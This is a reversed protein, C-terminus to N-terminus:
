TPITRERVLAVSNLKTKPAMRIICGSVSLRRVFNHLICCTKVIIYCFIPCVDMARRFIRWKNCVIGFACELMRRARTLTYNYIRRAVDFNRSSYPRLFQQSLAFAEDGLIVFPMLAGNDNHLPRSAPINLNGELKNCFNSNKFVNCDSSDGYAGSM